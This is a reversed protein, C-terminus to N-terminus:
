EGERDRVFKARERALTPPMEDYVHDFMLTPELPGAGVISARLASAAQKGEDACQQKFAETLIGESELYVEYRAVPDRAEWEKLEEDSRYRTPDDATSHPGRRYTMAEIFTPGKGSRAHAFALKGIAYCALVDNGDVRYGPMGYGLARVHLTPAATQKALPVSIAYGNNQCLFVVPAKWVGAFNMAEHFDGESTGGDGFCTLAVLNEGDFKAGTAFGVAHLTQTAIPVSYPAFRVARYDYLGGHWTGRFLHLIDAPNIKRLMAIGLERYSPFVWDQPQLNYGVGIQSAEQGLSPTYVGLEGQRQLNTSERDVLRTLIMVRYLEKHDDEKLDLDLGHDPVITGDPRLVQAMETSVTAPDVLGKM